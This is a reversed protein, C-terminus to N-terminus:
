SACRPSAPEADVLGQDTEIRMRGPDRCLAPDVKLRYAKEIGPFIYRGPVADTVSKDEGAVIRSIRARSAGTNKVTLELSGNKMLTASSVKLEPRATAPSAFVPVGITLLVSLKTQGDRPTEAPPLEEVFLRWATEATGPPESIAIRVVKQEGPKIDLRKPFYVLDKAEEYVDEGQADQTWRAARLRIQLPKTDDNTVNIVASQRQPSFQIDLPSVGFNGAAAPLAALAAALAIPATRM